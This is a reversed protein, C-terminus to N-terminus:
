YTGADKKNNSIFCVMMNLSNDRLQNHYHPEAGRNALKSKKPCDIGPVDHHTRDYPPQQALQAYKGHVKNMNKWCITTNWDRFNAQTLSRLTRFLRQQLLSLRAVAVSTLSIAPM